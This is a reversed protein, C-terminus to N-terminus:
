LAGALKLRLRPLARDIVRSLRLYTWIRAPGLRLLIVGLDRWASRDGAAARALACNVEISAEACSLLARDAPTSFEPRHRALVDAMQARFDALDRSGTMTLSTPHLRFATTPRPLVAVPGTASLKLYLDWDGTYWLGEDIGGVALWAERRIVPAPLAIVEQVLLQRGIEAGSRLGRRFPLSWTGVKRGDPGVFHSPAIIMAAEGHATIAARIADVRGPLWLDDQHLMAIWPAKAEVVALNTKATWPKIDPRAEYRIALRDMYGEAIARCASDASSDFLIFEIGTCDQAAVSDLTAALWPEGGHIPMVVSLWPTDVQRGADFQMPEALATM